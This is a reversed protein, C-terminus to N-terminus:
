DELADDAILRLANVISGSTVETPQKSILDALAGLADTLDEIRQQARDYSESLEHVSPVATDAGQVAIAIPVPTDPCDDWDELLAEPTAYLTGIQFDDPVYVVSPPPQQPEPAGIVSVQRDWTESQDHDSPWRYNVYAYETAFVLPSWMTGSWKVWVKVPVAPDERRPLAQWTEIYARPMYCERDGCGTVNHGFPEAPHGCLPCPKLENKM